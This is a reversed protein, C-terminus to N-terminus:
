DLLKELKKKFEEYMESYDEKTYKVSKHSLRVKKEWEKLGYKKIFWVSYEGYKGGGFGNCGGCQANVLKEDFLISNNRGSIAHGAQLEKFPLEKGCTVCKGREPDGTTALCDRTRIYKSFM